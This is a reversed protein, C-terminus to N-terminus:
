VGRRFGYQVGTQTRYNKGNAGDKNERSGHHLEVGLGLREMPPWILNAAAYDAAKYTNGPLFAAPNM